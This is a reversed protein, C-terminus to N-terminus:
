TWLQAQSIEIQDANMVVHLLFDVHNQLFDVITNTKEYFIAHLGLVPRQKNHNSIFPFVLYTKLGIRKHIVGNNWSKNM